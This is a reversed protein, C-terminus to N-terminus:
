RGDWLDTTEYEDFSEEEREILLTLLDHCHSQESVYVEQWIRDTTLRLNNEGGRSTRLYTYHYKRQYERQEKKMRYKRMYERRYEPTWKGTFPRGRKTM